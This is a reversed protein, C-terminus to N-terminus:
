PYAGAPQNKRIASQPGSAGGEGNYLAAHESASLVAGTIIGFHALYGHCAEWMTLKNVTNTQYLYGANGSYSSASNSVGNIYAFVNTTSNGRGNGNYSLSVFTWQGLPFANNFTWTLVPSSQGRDYLAFALNTTASPKYFRWEARDGKYAIDQLGAANTFQAWFYFTAPIDNNAGDTLSLANKDSVTIRGSGGIAQWCYNTEGVSNTGIQVFKPYGGSVVNTVNCATAIGNVAGEDWPSGASGRAGATKNTFNGIRLITGIANTSYPDYWYPDAAGGGGTVARPLLLLDRYYNMGGCLLVTSFVVTIRILKKM